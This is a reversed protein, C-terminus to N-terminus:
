GLGPWISIGGYGIKAAKSHKYYTGGPRGDKYTRGYNQLLLKDQAQMKLADDGSADGRLIQGAPLTDHIQWAKGNCVVRSFDKPDWNSLAYSNCCKKHCREWIENYDVGRDKFYQVIEEISTTAQTPFTENAKSLLDLVEKVYELPFFRGEAAHTRDLLKQHHFPMLPLVIWQLHLQFQSPPFNFGCLINDRVTEETIGERYVFKRWKDHKLFMRTTEWAEQEMSALLSKAACPDRLLWRWDPLYHSTPLVNLHCSSMALLDDFIIVDSTQRRISLTLPFATTREVGFIFGMLLNETKTIPVEALSSGCAPCTNQTWACPRRCQCVKQDNFLFRALDTKDRALSTVDGVVAPAITEWTCAVEPFKGVFGALYYGDKGPTVIEPLTAVIEDL